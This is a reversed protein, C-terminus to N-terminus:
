SCYAKEVNKMFKYNEGDRWPAYIYGLCTQWVIYLLQIIKLTSYILLRWCTQVAKIEDSDARICGTESVIVPM